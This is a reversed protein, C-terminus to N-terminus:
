GSLTELWVVALRALFLLEEAISALEANPIVGGDEEAARMLGVVRENLERQRETILECISPQTETPTM